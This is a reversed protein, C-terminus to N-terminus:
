HEQPEWSTRRTPHAGQLRAGIGDRPREEPTMAFCAETVRPRHLGEAEERSPVRWGERRGGHAPDLSVRPWSEITAGLGARQLQGRFPSEITSGPGADITNPDM